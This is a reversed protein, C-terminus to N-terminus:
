LCNLYKQIHEFEVSKMSRLKNNLWYKHKNGVTITIRKDPNEKITKEIVEWFGNNWQEWLKGLGPFMKSYFRDWIIEIWTDYAQCQFDFLSRSYVEGMSKRLETWFEWKKSLEPTSEIRNIEEKVKNEQEIWFSSEPQLPVITIGQERAFPIIARPYEPKADGAATNELQEPSFEVCIIDPNTKKVLDVLIELSYMPSYLHWQYATGIVVVNAM